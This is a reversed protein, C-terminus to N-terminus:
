MHLSGAKQVVILLLNAPLLGILLVISLLCSRPLAVKEVSVKSFYRSVGRPFRVASDATALCRPFAFLGSRDQSVAQMVPHLAGGVPLGTPATQINYRTM